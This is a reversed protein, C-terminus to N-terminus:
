LPIVNGNVNLQGQEFNVKFSLEEEKKIIFGQEVYMDIMPALGQKVFFPLPATGNANAKVASIISMINSSDFLTNDVSVQMSSKMMGEPTQVSFDSIEIAPKSELLKAVLSSFEKMNNPSFLEEGRTQLGAMLTNIEQMVKIHLGNFMVNLNANEVNEGAAVIKDASYNMSIAMLDNSVSSKANILLNNLSFVNVGATDIAEVSDISFDFDGISIANGQYYNGGILMQDLSLQVKGITFSEDSKTATLGAWNFDGYFRNDNDLTFHGVAKSSFVTNGDIEKSMEDIVVNSVINKSFTLLATLHIKDNIFTEIEEDIILDKFNINAQSFGLGFELGDDTFIVPGFSLKEEFLITINEIGDNQLLLTMETVATGDFWGIDYASSNIIIAPNENLKNVASQHESEVISGIFKPSILAITILM